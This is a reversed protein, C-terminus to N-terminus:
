CLIRVYQFGHLKVGTWVLIRCKRGGELEEVWGGPVYDEYLSRVM